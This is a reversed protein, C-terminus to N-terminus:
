EEEEEPFVPLYRAALGFVIVGLSVLTITVVFEMWSPAYINGSYPLLGIIGVNLRNLVIGFLVVMMAGGFLVGPKYRLPKIAFLVMPLIVGLGIEAAYALTQLNREFLLPWAGRTILDTARAVLYIFLVVSAAKALDAM